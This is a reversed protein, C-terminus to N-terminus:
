IRMSTKFTPLQSLLNMNSMAKLKKITPISPTSIHVPNMSLMTHALVKTTLTSNFPPPLNKGYMTATKVKITTFLLVLLTNKNLLLQNNSDSNNQNINNTTLLQRMILITSVSSHLHNMLKTTVILKLAISISILMPLTTTILKLMPLLKKSNMNLHNLYFVIARLPMMGPTTLISINLLSLFISSNNLPNTMTISNM